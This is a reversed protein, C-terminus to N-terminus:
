VWMKQERAKMRRRRCKSEQKMTHLGVWNVRKRRARCGSAWKHSLGFTVRPCKCEVSRRSPVSFQTGRLYIPYIWNRVVALTYSLLLILSLSSILSPVSWLDRCIGPFAARLRSLTLSIPTILSIGHKRHKLLRGYRGTIPEEEEDNHGWEITTGQKKSKPKRM